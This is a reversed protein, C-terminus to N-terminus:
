CLAHVFKEVVSQCTEEEQILKCVSLCPNVYICEMNTCCTKSTEFCTGGCQKNEEICQPIPLPNPLPQPIPSPQQPSPSPVIINGNCLESPLEGSLHRWEVSENMRDYVVIRKSLDSFSWDNSNDMDLAGEGYKSHFTLQVQKRSVQTSGQRIVGKEFHIDVVVVCQSNKYLYPKSVNADEKYYVDLYLDGLGGNQEIFEQINMFYQVLIEPSRPPWGSQNEIELNIQFTRNTNQSVQTRIDFEKGVAETPPFNKVISGGYRKFLATSVGVLGIMFDNGSETNVYNSRTLDISDDNNPGAIGYNIHRNEKPMDMSNNWSGHAGRHHLTTVFKEGYGNLYSIKQPNNGLIYDMQSLIWSNWSNVRREEVDSNDDLHALMLFGAAPGYRTSGWTTLFSLGGPTKGLRESWYDGFTEFVNRADSDRFLKWLLYVNMYSCDDWVPAWILTKKVLNRSNQIAYNKYVDEGTAWYLAIASLLQEDEFHSSAYFSAAEPISDSYKVNYKTSFDHLERAHRLLLKSYTPQIKNFIISGMAFTASVAGAIDSGPKSDTVAYSPRPLPGFECPVWVEHDIVGNGVQAYLVNPQPHARIWFDLSHNLLQLQKEYEEGTSKLVDEYEILNFAMMYNTFALPLGFVVGDGCDMLGGTLDLGVDSGDNIFCDGRWNFPQWDPMIGTMQGYYFSRSMALVQGWDHM